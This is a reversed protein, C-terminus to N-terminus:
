VLHLLMGMAAGLGIVLVPHINKFKILGFFGLFLALNLWNIGSLVLNGGFFVVMKIFGLLAASILGASTPRLGYFIGQTLPSKQYRDLFPILLLVVIISPLVLALTAMVGGLYGGVRIGVFTAMNIGIPGPTSESIAVMDILEKTTFWGYKEGMDQLFPITALGGGIAFLGTFAFAYILRLIEM